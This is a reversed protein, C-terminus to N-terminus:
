FKLYFNKTLEKYDDTFNHREKNEIILIETQESTKNRSLELLVRKTNKELKPKVLLKRNCFLNNKASKEIFYNINQEPLIIAFTGTKNLLTNTTHILENINLSVTHRAISIKNNKCPLSNEFYPPNSIIYDFKNQQLKTFEQASINISKLREKWPSNDFNQKAQTAADKDIDISIITINQFRQALMLSIVGTGTGIDLVSKANKCNAWAGLLVGDTGVKMASKDQLITFQKFKFWENPM